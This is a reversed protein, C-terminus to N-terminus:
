IKGAEDSTPPSTAGVCELLAAPTKNGIASHSRVENYDRRWCELKERADALSLFWHTNLCEARLRGNRESFERELHRAIANTAQTLSSYSKSWTYSAGWLATKAIYFKGHDEKITYGSLAHVIEDM